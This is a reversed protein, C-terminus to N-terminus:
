WNTSPRNRSSRRRPRSLEIAGGRDNNEYQERSQLDRESEFQDRRAQEYQEQENLTYSVEVFTERLLLPYDSVWLNHSSIYIDSTKSIRGLDGRNSMVVMEAADGIAIAQYERKLPVQLRSTFGTEDGVVLNFRRERNEVIVLEGRENVTEEKGILEETVYADVVDGHWFGSYPYKRFEINKLSAWFVPGWLWYLGTVIGLLFRLFGFGEGLLGGLLLIVTVGGISILLRLLLAPFKGWCYIYQPGTATAPILTEFTKRTLPILM